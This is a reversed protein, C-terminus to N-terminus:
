INMSGSPALALSGDDLLTVTKDGYNGEHYTAILPSTTSYAWGLEFPTNLPIVFDTSDGTTLKRRTTM